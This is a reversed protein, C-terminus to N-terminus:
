SVPLLTIKGFGRLFKVTMNHKEGPFLLKSDTRSNSGLQPSFLVQQCTTDFCRGCHSGSFSLMQHTLLWVIQVSSFSPHWTTGKLWFTGRSVPKQWSEMTLQTDRRLVYKKCEITLWQEWFCYVYLVFFVLSVFLPVTPVNTPVITEGQICTNLAKEVLTRSHVCHCM